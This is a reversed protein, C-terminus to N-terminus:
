VFETSIGHVHVYWTKLHPWSYEKGNRHDGGIHGDNIEPSSGPIAESALLEVRGLRLQDLASLIYEGAGASTRCFLLVSRILGIHTLSSM